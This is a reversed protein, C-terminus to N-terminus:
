GKECFVAEGLLRFRVTLREDYWTTVTARNAMFHQQFSVCRVWHYPRDCLWVYSM